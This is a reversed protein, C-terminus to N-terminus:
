SAHDEEMLRAEHRAVVREISARDEATMAKLWMPRRVYKGKLWGSVTAQSVGLQRAANAQGYTNVLPVVVHDIYWEEPKGRAEALLALKNNAM